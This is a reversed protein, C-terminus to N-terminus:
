RFPRVSTLPEDAELSPACNGLFHAKAARASWTIAVYHAQIVRRNEAHCLSFNGHGTCPPYLSQCDPLILLLSQKTQFCSCYFSRIFGVLYEVVFYSHSHNSSCGSLFAWLGLLTVGLSYSKNLKKCENWLTQCVSFSLFFHPFLLHIVSCTM